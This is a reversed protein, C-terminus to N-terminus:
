ANLALVSVTAVCERGVFVVPYALWALMFGEVNLEPPDIPVPQPMRACPQPGIREFCFVNM